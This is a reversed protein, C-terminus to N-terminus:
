RRWHIAMRLRRRNRIALPDHNGNGNRVEVENDGGVDVVAEPCAEEDVIFPNEVIRSNSASRRCHSAATHVSCIVFVRSFSLPIHQVKVGIEEVVPEFSNAFPDDSAASVCVM